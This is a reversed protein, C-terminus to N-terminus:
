TGDIKNPDLALAMDDPDFKAIRDSENVFGHNAIAV